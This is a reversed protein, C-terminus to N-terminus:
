MLKKKSPKMVIDVIEKRFEPTAHALPPTATHIEIVTSNVDLCDSDDKAEGSSEDPLSPLTSVEGVPSLGGRPIDQLPLVSGRRSGPLTDSSCFSIESTSSFSSRSLMLATPSSTNLNASGFARGTSSGESTLLPRQSDPSEVNQIVSVSVKPTPLLNAAGQKNSSAPEFQIAPLGDEVMIQRPRGQATSYEQYQSTVCLVCYVNLASIIIDTAILVCFFPDAETDTILYLSLIIDLITTMPISLIWPILLIKNNTCLGIILLISSLVSLAAFAVMLISFTILVPLPVPINFLTHLHFSGATVVVIYFTMTYIGSAFSGSRVSKWCCCSKLLAM